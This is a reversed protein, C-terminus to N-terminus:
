VFRDAEALAIEADGRSVSAPGFAAREYLSTLAELAATEELGAAVCARYFEWHTADSSAIDRAQLRGRTVSYAREVAADANGDIASRAPALPDSEAVEPQGGSDAPETAVVPATGTDEDLAEAARWRGVLWVALGLSVGLGLLAGLVVLPNEAVGSLRELLGGDAGSEGDAGSGGVGGGGGGDGNAPPLTVIASASADELNTSPEEYRVAVRYREGAEGSVTAEYRGEPGTQTTAVLSGNRRIELQQGAIGDGARTALAGSLSITTGATETELTLGTATETVELTRTAASGAVARDELPVRVTVTRNGVSVGAPLSGALRFEGDETTTGRALRTGEVSLVVPVGSVGRGAASVEGSVEVPTGFTARPTLREVSVTSDVQEVVFSANARSGLYVSTDAPVYRVTV